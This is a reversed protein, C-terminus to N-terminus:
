VNTIVIEWQTTIVFDDTKQQDVVVRAILEGSGADETGGAFLGLERWHFNAEEDFFFTEFVPKDASLRRDTIEKRFLENYLTETSRRTASGDDGVAIYDIYNSQGELLFNAIFLVGGRVVRNRYQKVGAPTILRVNSGVHLIGNLKM